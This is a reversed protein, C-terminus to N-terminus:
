GKKLLERIKARESASKPWGDLTLKKWRAPSVYKGLIYSERATFYKTTDKRTKKPKEPAVWVEYMGGVKKIKTNQGIARRMRADIDATNKLGYSAVKVYGKM